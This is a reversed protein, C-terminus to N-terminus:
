VASLLVLLAEISSDLDLGTSVLLVGSAGALVLLVSTLELLLLLLLLLLLVDVPEVDDIGAAENVDEVLGLPSAYVAPM